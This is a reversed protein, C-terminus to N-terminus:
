PKLRQRLLEFNTGYITRPEALRNSTIHPKTCAGDEKGPCAGTDIFKKCNLYPM